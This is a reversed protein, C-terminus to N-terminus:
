IIYIIKFKWFVFNLLYYESCSNETFIILILNPVSKM